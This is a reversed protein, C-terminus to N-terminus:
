LVIVNFGNEKLKNAAALGSIGAGIVIVTKGNPKVNSEKKCSNILFSPSLLLAQLGTLTSKIFKRKQM